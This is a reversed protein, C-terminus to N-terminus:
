PLDTRVLPSLTRTNQGREWHNNVIGTHKVLFDVAAPADAGLEAIVGAVSVGPEQMKANFSGIGGRTAQVWGHLLQRASACAKESLNTPPTTVTRDFLTM